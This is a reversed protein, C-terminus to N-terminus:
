FNEKDGVDKSAVKGYLYIDGRQEKADLWFMDLYRENGDDKCIYSELDASAPSVTSNSEAAIEDAVFSSVDIAPMSSTTKPTEVVVEEKPQAQASRRGLLRRPALQRKPPPQKTETGPTVPLAENNPDKLDDPQEKTEEEEKVKLLEVSAM